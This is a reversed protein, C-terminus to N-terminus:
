NALRKRMENILVQITITDGNRVNEPTVSEFQPKAAKVNQALLGLVVPLLRM